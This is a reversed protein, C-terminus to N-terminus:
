RRSTRRCLMLSKMWRTRSVAASCLCRSSCFRAGGATSQLVPGRESSGLSAPHALKGMFIMPSLLPPLNIPHQSPWLCPMARPPDRSIEPLTLPCMPGVSLVPVDASAPCGGYCRCYSFASLATPPCRQQVDFPLFRLGWM